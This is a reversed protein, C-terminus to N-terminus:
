PETSQAVNRFAVFMSRAVTVPTTAEEPVRSIEILFSVGPQEVARSFELRTVDHSIIESTGDQSRVLQQEDVVGDGDDDVSNGANENAYAALSYRITTSWDSSDGTFAVRRQFDVWALTSARSSPHSPVHETGDPDAGSDKLEESIREVAQRLSGDMGTSWVNHRVVDSTESFMRWCALLLVGSLTVAIVLELLSFGRRRAAPPSAPDKM